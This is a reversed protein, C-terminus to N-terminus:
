PPEVVDVLLQGLSLFGGFALGGEFCVELGDGAAEVVVVGDPHALEVAVWWGADGVLESRPGTGTAVGVSPVGGGPAEVLVVGGVVDGGADAGGSEGLEGAEFVASGEGFLVLLPEVLADGEFASLGAM